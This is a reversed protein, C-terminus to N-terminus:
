EYCGDSLRTYSSSMMEEEDQELLLCLREFTEGSMKEPAIHDIGSQQIGVDVIDSTYSPLALDCYAQVILLLLIIAVSGKVQALNKVIKSM